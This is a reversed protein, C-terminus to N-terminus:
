LGKRDRYELVESIELPYNHHLDKPADFSKELWRGINCLVANPGFRATTYEPAPKIFSIPKGGEFDCEWFDCEEFDCEVGQRGEGM